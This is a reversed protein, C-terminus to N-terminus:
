TSPRDVVNSLLETTWKLSIPVDAALERLLAIAALSRM